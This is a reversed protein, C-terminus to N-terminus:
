DYVVGIGVVWDVGRGPTAFSLTLLFPSGCFWRERSFRVEAVREVALPPREMAARTDDHSARLDPQPRAPGASEAM